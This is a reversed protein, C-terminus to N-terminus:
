EINTRTWVEFEEGPLLARFGSEDEEKSQNPADIIWSQPEPCVFDTQGGANWLMFYALSPSVLYTVARGSQKDLLRVTMKCAREFHASLAKGRPPVGGACLAKGLPTIGREGTPIISAKDLMIQRKVPMTLLLEDMDAGPLFKLNLTTHFGVGVPMPTDGTNKICLRQFLGNQNLVFTRIVTFTHPFTLYPREKTAEFGFDARAEDPKETVKILSFPTASLLGHIHHGREPENLPFTYVRGNFTYRGGSIRNPPFLLPEGYVNPAGQFTSLDPPTRYIDAEGLKLRIPNAGMLPCIDATNEGASLRLTPIDNLMAQAIM